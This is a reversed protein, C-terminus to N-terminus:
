EYDEAFCRPGIAYVAFTGNNDCNYLEFWNGDAPFYLGIFRAEAAAKERNRRYVDHSEQSCDCKGTRLLEARRRLATASM